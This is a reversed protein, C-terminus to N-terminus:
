IRSESLGLEREMEVKFEALKSMVHRKDRGMRLIVKLAERQERNNFMPFRKVEWCQFWHEARQPQRNTSTYGWVAAPCGCGRLPSGLM